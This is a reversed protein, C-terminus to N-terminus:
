YGGEMGEGGMQSYLDEMSPQQPKENIAFFIAIVVIVAMIPFALEKFGYSEAFLFLAGLSGLLLVVALLSRITIVMIFAILIALWGQGHQFALMMLVIGMLLNFLDM